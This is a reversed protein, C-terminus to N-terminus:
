GEDRKGEVNFYQGCSLRKATGLTKKPGPAFSAAALTARKKYGWPASEPKM